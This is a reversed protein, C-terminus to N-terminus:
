YIDRAWKKWVDRYEDYLYSLAFLDETELQSPDTTILKTVYWDAVGAMYRVNQKIIGFRKEGWIMIAIAYLPAFILWKVLTVIMRIILFPLGIFFAICGFNSFVAIFIYFINGFNIWPIIFNVVKVPLWYRSLPIIGLICCIPHIISVCMLPIFLLVGLVENVSLVISIAMFPLLSIWVFGYMSMVCVVLINDDLDSKLMDKVLFGDSVTVSSEEVKYQTEKVEHQVRTLMDQMTPANRRIVDVPSEPTSAHYDESYQQGAQFDGSIYARLLDVVDNILNFNEAYLAEQEKSPKTHAITDPHWRKKAKRRLQTIDKDTLDDLNSIELIRQVDQLTLTKQTM